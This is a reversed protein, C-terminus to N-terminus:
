SLASVKVEAFTGSEFGADRRTETVSSFNTEVIVQCEPKSSRKNVGAKINTINYFQFRLIDIFRSSSRIDHTTIHNDHTLIIRIHCIHRNENHHQDVQTTIVNMFQMHHYVHSTIINKPQLTKWLNQHM